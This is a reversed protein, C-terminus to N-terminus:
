RHKAAVRSERRAQALGAHDVWGPYGTRVADNSVSRLHTGAKRDGVRWSGRSKFLMYVAPDGTSMEQSDRHYVDEAMEIVVAGPGASRAGKFEFTKLEDNRMAWPQLSRAKPHTLRKVGDWDRRVVRSLYQQLTAKALFVDPSEERILSQVSDLGDKETLGVATAAAVFALAVAVM